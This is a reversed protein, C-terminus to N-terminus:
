GAKKRKKRKRVKPQEMEDEEGPPPPPHHPTIGGTPHKPPKFTYRDEVRCNTTAKVAEKLLELWDPRHRWTGIDYPIDTPLTYTGAGTPADDVVFIRLMRPRPALCREITAYGGGVTHDFLDHCRERTVCFADRVAYVFSIQHEASLDYLLSVDTYVLFM